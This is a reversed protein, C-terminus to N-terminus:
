LFTPSLENIFLLKRLYSTVKGVVTDGEGATDNLIECFSKAFEVCPLAINGMNELEKLSSKLIFLRPEENQLLKQLRERIDLKYKLGAFIFNGDLIVKIHTIYQYNVCLFMLDKLM